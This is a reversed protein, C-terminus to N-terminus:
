AARKQEAAETEAEAKETKEKFGYVLGPIQSRSIGLDSLTRDDLSMMENITRAARFDSAVQAFFRRLRLSVRRSLDALAEGRLREAEAVLRRERDLTSEDPRPEFPVRERAGLRNSM